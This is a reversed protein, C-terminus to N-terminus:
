GKIGRLISSDDFTALGIVVPAETAVGWACSEKFIDSPLIRVTLAKIEKRAIKAAVM